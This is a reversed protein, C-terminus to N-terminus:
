DELIEGAFSGEKEVGLLIEEITAAIDAFTKRTGINVNKKINKGYILIPIYERTHDTGKFTPDNGHDATIILIEDDKLNKQIEPLWNDFEILADAYGRPNRRHGYVSDFDVLNTFILGKTNERLAAVTKKIGDLNDKNAKRNDTIGKGNFLDSTKGIGIVDLGAKELRELMSEKPPDISFDHRNSTRHFDGKKTGIYPRAIVRAVPSKRNCIDLAIECAKYLEELPIIEEHAAIQFVPDASGYVIWDGTKMQEEGFRDIIETGSAPKNWLVKRGTKEEFEKIVEDSFGNKYNPFPRELPVGAIEWHGTTSDKGHSVEIARGYAGEVNEVALTGEIETINGLGLKAMNPLSMGGVAKAMNGLTNAGEDDFIHADPLEGAGVSDLVILTIRSIDKM